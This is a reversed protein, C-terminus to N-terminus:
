NPDSQVKIIFESYGQIIAMKMSFNLVKDIDDQTFTKINENNNLIMSVVSDVAKIVADPNKVDLKKFKLMEIVMRQTPKQIKLLTGDPLKLDLTQDEFVSLDIVM